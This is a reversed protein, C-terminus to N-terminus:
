QEADPAWASKNINMLQTDINQDFYMRQCVIPKSASSPLIQQCLFSLWKKRIADAAESPTQKDWLLTCSRLCHVCIVEFGRYGGKTNMFLYEFDHQHELLYNWSEDWGRKDAQFITSDMVRGIDDLKNPGIHNFATIYLEKNHHHPWPEEDPDNVGHKCALTNIPVAPHHSDIASCPSEKGDQLTSKHHEMAPYFSQPM